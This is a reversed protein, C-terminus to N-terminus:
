LIWEFFVRFPERIGGYIGKLLPVLGGFFLIFFLVGLFSVSSVKKTEVESKKKEVKTNSKPAFALAIIEVNSHSSTASSIRIPEDYLITYIVDM